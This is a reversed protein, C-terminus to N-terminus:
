ASGAGRLDAGQLNVSRAHPMMATFGGVRPNFTDIAVPRMDHGGLRAGRLNAGQLNAGSLNAANLDAERLDAGELNVGELVAGGLDASELHAGQLNAWALVAERLGASELHAGQLNAWALIARRLVVGRLDAERLHVQFRDAGAADSPQQHWALLGSEDLFHLVMGKGRGDVRQLVSLTNAQAEVRGADDPGSERLERQRLLERMANFYAQLEAEQRADVEEGMTVRAFNASGRTSLLQQSSGKSKFVSARITQWWYGFKGKM